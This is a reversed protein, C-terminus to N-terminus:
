VPASHIRTATLSQSNGSCGGAGARSTPIRGSISYRTPATTSAKSQRWRLQDLPCFCNDLPTSINLGAQTSYVGRFAQFGSLEGLTLPITASLSTTAGQDFPHEVVSLNEANRPDYVMLTFTAPMTKPSLIGGLIYPPTVGSIPAALGLNWFTTEGGGGILPTASAVDLMNFTGLSVSINNGFKQSVSLSLPGHDHRRAAPVGVRHQCPHLSM